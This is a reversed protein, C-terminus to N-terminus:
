AGGKGFYVRWADLAKEGLPSLSWLTTKDAIPTPTEMEVRKSVLWGKEYMRNLTTGVSGAPIKAEHRVLANNAGATHHSLVELIKGENEGIVLNM